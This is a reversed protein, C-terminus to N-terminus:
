RQRSSRYEQELISMLVYDHYKGDRFLAERQRGEERFGKSAYLRGAAANTDMVLLWVRHMNLFDFCYRLMLDYVRSGYKQGRLKPVIDCGIRISRNVRDIEDCRVIGILDHEHDCVVFYARDTAESIKAFWREQMPATILRVDTLNGWTTPDNRLARVGELDQQELVRIRIGQHEFLDLVKQGRPVAAATAAM